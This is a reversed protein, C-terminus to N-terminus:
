YLTPMADIAAKVDADGACPELGQGVRDTLKASQADYTHMETTLARAADPDKMLARARAFTPASTQFLARLEHAIAPCDGARETVIAAMSALVDELAGALQKVEAPDYSRAPAPAPAPKAPAGCACIVLVVLASARPGLGSARM